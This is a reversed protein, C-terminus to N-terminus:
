YIEQAFNFHGSGFRGDARELPQLLPSPSPNTNLDDDTEIWLHERHFIPFGPTGPLFSATFSTFMFHFYDNPTSEM